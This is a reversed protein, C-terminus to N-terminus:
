VVFGVLLLELARAYTSGVAMALGLVLLYTIVHNLEIWTQDPAVSWLVTIGSWLAFTGLFGVGVAAIRPAALRLTGTWLWPVLAAVSIGTIALEIRTDTSQSVAGHDFAAYLIVALLVVGIAVPVAVAAASRAQLSDASQGARVATLQATSMHLPSALLLM